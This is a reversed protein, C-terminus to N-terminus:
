DDEEFDMEENEDDEDDEKSDQGEEIQEMNTLGFMDPTYNPVRINNQRAFEQFITRSEEKGRVLVSEWMHGETNKHSFNKFLLPWLVKKLSGGFVNGGTIDSFEDEDRKKREELKSPFPVKTIEADKPTEKGIEVTPANEKELEPRNGDELSNGKPQDINDVTVELTHIELSSLVRNSRLAIAKVPEKGERAMNEIIKYADEYTKNM